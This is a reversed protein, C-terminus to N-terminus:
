TTSNTTAASVDVRSAITNLFHDRVTEDGELSCGAARSHGGGGFLGALNSVDVDETLSRMSVRWGDSKRYLMAAVLAGETGALFNVIGEAESEDARSDELMAPTIETWILKGNLRTASLAHAWLRLTSYPHIRFLYDVIKDLEAGARLLTASVELTRGTTSPTRLGLTDGQIGSMLTTALGPSLPIELDQYLLTLIECTAAAESDILNITGFRSNTVHHDINIVPVSGLAENVLDVGTPGVRAEDACDLLAVLDYDSVAIDGVQVIHDRGPLFELTEPVTGAGLALTITRAPTSFADKFSLLSAVADADPNAHSVALVRAARAVTEGIQSSADSFYM